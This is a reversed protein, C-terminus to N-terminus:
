TSAESAKMDKELYRAWEICVEGAPLHSMLPKLWSLLEIRGVTNGMVAVVPAMLAEVTPVHLAGPYLPVLRTLVLSSPKLGM